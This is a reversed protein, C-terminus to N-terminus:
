QMLAVTALVTIGMTVLTVSNAASAASHKPLMAKKASSAIKMAPAGAQAGETAKRAEPSLIGAHKSRKEASEPAAAAAIAQQVNEKQETKEKKKDGDGAKTPLCKAFPICDICFQNRCVKCKEGAKLAKACQPCIACSNVKQTPDSYGHACKKAHSSKCDVTTVGDQTNTGAEGAYAKGSKADVHHQVVPKAAVKKQVVAKKQVVPKPEQEEAKKKDLKTAATKAQKVGAQKIEHEVAETRTLEMAADKKADAKIEKVAHTEAGKTDAEEVRKVVEDTPPIKAAMKALNQGEVDQGQSIPKSPVKPEVEMLSARPARLPPMSEEPVVEDADQVLPSLTFLLGM